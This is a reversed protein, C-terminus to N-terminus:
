YTPVNSESGLPRIVLWCTFVPIEMKTLLMLTSVLKWCCVFAMTFYVTTVLFTVWLDVFDKLVYMYINCQIIM